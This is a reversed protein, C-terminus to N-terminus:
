DYGYAGIIVDSYGDGNVDGATGVSYGLYAYSQDGGATWSPSLALSDGAAPYRAGAVDLMIRINKQVVAWWDSNAGPVGALAELVASNPAATELATQSSPLAAAVGTRLVSSVPALLLMLSILCSLLFHKNM